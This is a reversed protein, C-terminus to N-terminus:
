FNKEYNFESNNEIYKNLEELSTKKIIDGNPLKVEYVFQNLKSDTGDASGDDESEDVPNLLDDINDNNILKSLEEATLDGDDSSLKVSPVKIIAEIGLISWIFKIIENIISELLKLIPRLSLSLINPNMRVMGYTYTPLSKIVSINIIDTINDIETDDSILWDGNAKKAFAKELIVKILLPDFKIGMMDLIGKPTFFTLIWKFSLFEVMRNPLTFPNVLSKFFKLIYEVIGAVIKIPLTVVGLLLKFLPQTNSGIKNLLDKLEKKKGKLYSNNPDIDIAQNMLQNAKSLSEDDEKKVLVDVQDLLIKVDENIYIYNYDVGPLYEGTSYEIITTEERVNFQTNFPYSTDLKRLAEKTSLSGNSLAPVIENRNTKDKFPTNAKNSQLNVSLSKIKTDPFILKVPPKELIRDMKLDMGFPLNKGFIKFPILTTGDLLTRLEGNSENIYVYNKLRSETIPKQRAKVYEKTSNYKSPDVDLSTKLKNISDKSLPGFHEGLKGILIDVIFSFPNKFLSILQSAQPVLKAFIKILLKIFVKFVGLAHPLRYYSGSDSKNTNSNEDTSGVGEENNNSTELVGEIIYYTETDSQTLMFRKISDVSQPEEKSGHGYKGKSFKGNTLIEKTLDSVNIIKGPTDDNTTIQTSYSPTIKTSEDINLTKIDINFTKEQNLNPLNGVNLKKECYIWKIIKNNEVFINKNNELKIIGSAPIEKRIGNILKYEKYSYYKGQKTIEAKKDSNIDWTHTSNKRYFEFPIERWIELDYTELNNLKGNVYNWNSLSFETINNEIIIDNSLNRIMKINFSENNKFKFLTNNNSLSITKIESVGEKTDSNVKISTAPKVKIVKLKYDTEPDIWIMGPKEGNSLAYNRLKDDSAAEPSFIKIPKFLKRMTNPFGNPHKDNKKYISNNSLQGYLISNELQQEIDLSNIIKSKISIQEDKPLGSKGLEFGLVDKYYKLYESTDSKDFKSIVPNGEIADEKTLINKDGKKYKKLDYGDPKSNSTKQLVGKKWVYYPDNFSPWESANEGLKWKDSQTVWSAKKFPTSVEEELGNRIVKVKLKENPNLPTGDEKYVGLILTEPKYKDLEDVDEQEEELQPKKNVEPPLDIYIYKYNVNPDFKGTSFVTSLIEYRDTNLNGINSETINNDIIDSKKVNGEDDSSVGGSTLKKLEKIKEKSDNGKFGIAKPKKGSGGNASPKKSKTTLPSSSLLPALRAIIEEIDSISDIVISALEIYPKQTEFISKLAITEFMKFGVDKDLELNIDTERIKLRGKDDKLKNINDIGSNTNEAFRSFIEESNTSIPNSLNKFLSKKVMNDAIGLNGEIFKTIYSINPVLLISPEKLGISKSIISDPGPFSLSVNYPGTVLSSGYLPFKISLPM